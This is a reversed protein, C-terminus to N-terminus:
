DCGATVFVDDDDGSEGGVLCRFRIFSFHRLISFDTPRLFHCVFFHQYMGFFSPAYHFHNPVFLMSPKPMNEPM